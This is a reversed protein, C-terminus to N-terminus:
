WASATGDPGARAGRRRGRRSAPSPWSGCCSTPRIASTSPASSRASAAAPSCTAVAVPPGAARLGRGDRRRPVRRRRHHLRPRDRRAPRDDDGDRRRVRHRPAHRRAPRRGDAGSRRVVGARVEHHHGALAPARRQRPQHDPRRHRHRQLGAPRRPRDMAPLPRAVDYVINQRGHGLHPPAYVTPGCLYITVKGPDRLALERVERTATDYLRLVVALAVPSPTWHGASPEPPRRIRTRHASIGSLGVSSPMSARQVLTPLGVADVAEVAGASRGVTNEISVGGGVTERSAGCPGRTRSCGCRRGRGSGASPRCPRRRGSRSPRCRGAGGLPPHLVVVAHAAVRRLRVVRRERRREAAVGRLVM